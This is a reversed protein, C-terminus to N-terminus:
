CFFVCMNINITKCVQPTPLGFDEMTKNERSFRGQLDILLDNENQMDAMLEDLHERYIRITPFGQLTLLVFLSRLEPPSAQNVEDTLLEAFALEAENEDDLLGHAFCAEQFTDYRVGNCTYMDDISVPFTNRLLLRMYWLEGSNFPVPNLRIIRNAKVLRHIYVHKEVHEFDMQECQLENAAPPTLSLPVCQAFRTPMDYTYDFNRFFEVFTLNLLAAPRALYIEFDCLKGAQQVKSLQNETKLKITSVAPFSAPYTPYNFVRWCAEM